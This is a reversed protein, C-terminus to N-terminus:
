PLIGCGCCIAPTATGHRPTYLKPMPRRWFSDKKPADLSAVHVGQLQANSSLITFLFNEGDPLISPFRHATEQRSTDLVTVPTPAGGFASVRQIVNNASFLITGDSGWTGGQYNPADCLVQPTGGVVDVCKLKNAAVFGISRSDPSWFPGNAGQTGPLERADLSDMPPLWITVDPSGKRNIGFAIFHGDPSIATNFYTNVFRTDPPAELSYRLSQTDEASRRLFAWSVPGIALLAVVAAAIWTLRRYPLRAARTGSDTGISAPDALYKTIVFRAEGIWQLRNKVDRDLCRCVMNKIPAPATLKDFDVPTQLVAALTHAVTDGIFLRQGSLM